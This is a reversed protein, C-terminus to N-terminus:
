NADRTFIGNFFLSGIKIQKLEALQGGIRSTSVLGFTLAKFLSSTEIKTNAIIMEFQVIIDKVLDRFFLTLSMKEPHSSDSDVMAASEYSIIKATDMMMKLRGLDLNLSPDPVPIKKRLMEVLLIAQRELAGTVAGMMLSDEIDRFYIVIDEYANGSSTIMASEPVECNTLTIGGHLAPRLFSVDLPDSITLGPTNKPVIFTSFRKKGSVTGIVAVVIFLDAMPGNTLYSKEGNLVYGTKTKEASTSIHKPHAGVKPESVAFSATIRGTALDKLWTSKQLDTGLREIIYHATIQHILFSLVIGLNGGDKVLTHACLSIDLASRGLGGFEKSIPIGLLGEDGMKLWLDRPFKKSQHLTQLPEIHEVAFESVDAMWEKERKTLITSM